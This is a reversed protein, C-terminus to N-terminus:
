LEPQLLKGDKTVLKIMIINNIRIDRLARQIKINIEIAEKTDEDYMETNAKELLYGLM